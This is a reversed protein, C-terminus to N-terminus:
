MVSVFFKVTPEPADWHPLHNAGDFPVVRISRGAIGKAQRRLLMEKITYASLLHDGQSQMCGVVQIKVNPFYINQEQFVMRETCEAFIEPHFGLLVPLSSRVLAEPSSIKELTYKPIRSITPSPHEDCHKQLGDWFESPTPFTDLSTATLADRVVPAHKGYYGSLWAPFAVVRESESLAPDRLPCYVKDSPPAPMGIAYFPVDFVIYSRLYPEIMDRVKEPISDAMAFFPIFLTNGASWAVLNIGGSREGSSHHVQVPPIDEHQIYWQLFTAFELVGSRIFEEQITRDTSRICKLEADSYLSSQGNDRGDLLVLRVNSASAFPVM